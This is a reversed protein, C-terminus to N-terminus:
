FLAYAAYFSPNGTYGALRNSTMASTVQGMGQYALLALFAYFLSIYIQSQLLKELEEKKFTTALIVFFLLFHWIGFV